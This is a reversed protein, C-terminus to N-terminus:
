SSRVDGKEKGEGEEPPISRIAAAHKELLRKARKLLCDSKHVFVSPRLFHGECGFWCADINVESHIGKPDGELGCDVFAWLTDVLEQHRETELEKMREAASAQSSSANDTDNLLRLLFDISVDVFVSNKAREEAFERSLAREEKTTESM